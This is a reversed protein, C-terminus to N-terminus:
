SIFFVWTLWELDLSLCPTAVEGKGTDSSDGSTFSLCISLCIPGMKEQIGPQGWGLWMVIGRSERAGPQQTQHGGPRSRHGASGSSGRVPSLVRKRGTLPAGLLAWCTRQGPWGSAWSPGPGWGGHLSVAPVGSSVPAAQLSCRRIVGMRGPSRVHVGPAESVGQSHGSEATQFSINGWKPFSALSM